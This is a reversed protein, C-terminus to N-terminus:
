DLTGPSAERPTEFSISEQDGIVGNGDGDDWTVWTRGQDFADSIREEWGEGPNDIDWTEDSEGDGDIDVKLGTTEGGTVVTGTLNGSHGSAPATPAALAAPAFCLVVILQSADSVVRM